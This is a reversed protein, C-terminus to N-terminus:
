DDTVGTQLLMKLCGVLGCPFAPSAEGAGLLVRAVDCLWRLGKLEDGQEVDRVRRALEPDDVLAALDKALNDGSIV